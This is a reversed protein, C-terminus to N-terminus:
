GCISNQAASHAHNPPYNADTLKWTGLVRAAPGAVAAKLYQFKFAVPLNQNLHVAAKFRDRFSHWQAYDGSFQGWTNPINALADATQVVIQQRQQNVVPLQQQQNAHADREQQDLREIQKRCILRLRLYDNEVQQFHTIYVDGLEDTVAEHGVLSLHETQYSQWNNELMQMREHIEVRSYAEIADDAIHNGARTIASAFHDRRRTSMIQAAREEQLSQLRTNRRALKVM